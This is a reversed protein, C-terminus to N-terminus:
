KADERFLTVKKGDIEAEEVKKEIEPEVVEKEEKEQADADEM